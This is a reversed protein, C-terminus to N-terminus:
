RTSRDESSVQAGAESYSAFAVWLEGALYRTRPSDSRGHARLNDNLVAGAADTRDEPHRLNMRLRVVGKSGIHVMTVTGSKDVSEVVAVHSLPDDLRGNGNRDYTDDFFAVDGPSPMRRRHLVGAAKAQDFLMASSGKFACGASALSAEVLGSCDWRYREGEVLLAKAGVFATAAQAIATPSPRNAIPGPRTRAPKEAPPLVWESGPDRGLGALPGPIRHFSPACALLLILLM